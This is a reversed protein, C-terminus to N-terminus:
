FNSESYLLDFKSKLFHGKVYIIKNRIASINKRLISASNNLYFEGCLLIKYNIHTLSYFEELNKKLFSHNSCYIINLTKLIKKKYILDGIVLCINSTKINKLLFIEYRSNNYDKVLKKIRLNTEKNIINLNKVLILDNKKPRKLFQNIFVLKYKITFKKYGMKIFTKSLSPLASLVTISSKKNIEKFLLSSAIRHNIDVMWSHVNCNLYNKNFNQKISYITGLFGVIKNKHILIHAVPFKKQRFSKLLLIVKSQSLNNQKKLYILTKKYELSNLFVKKVKYNNFWNIKFNKKENM